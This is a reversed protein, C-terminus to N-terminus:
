NAAPPVFVLRQSLADIENRHPAAIENPWHSGLNLRIRELLEPEHAAYSPSWTAGLGAEVGELLLWFFRAFGANLGINEDGPGLAELLQALCTRTREPDGAALRIVALRLADLSGQVTELAIAQTLRQAPDVQGCLLLSDALKLQFAAAAETSEESLALGGAVVRDWAGEWLELWARRFSQELWDKGPYGHAEFFTRLRKAVPRAITRVSADYLAPLWPGTFRELVLQPELGDVSVGAGALYASALLAQQARSNTEPESRSVLLEGALAGFTEWDGLSQRQASTIFALDFVRYPWSAEDQVRGSGAPCLARLTALCGQTDQNFIRRLYSEPLIGHVCREMTFELECLWHRWTTSAAALGLLQRRTYANSLWHVTSGPLEKRLRARRLFWDIPVEKEFDAGLEIAEPSPASEGCMRMFDSDSSELRALLARLKLCDQQLLEPGQEFAAYRTPSAQLGERLLFPKQLQVCVRITWFELAPLKCDIVVREAAAIGQAAEHLANAEPRLSRGRLPIQGDGGSADLTEFLLELARPNVTDHLWLTDAPQGRACIEGPLDVDMRLWRAPLTEAWPATLCTSLEDPTFESLFHIQPQPGWRLLARGAAERNAGLLSLVCRDTPADAAFAELSLVRPGQADTPSFQPLCGFLAEWAEQM